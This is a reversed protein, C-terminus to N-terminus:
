APRTAATGSSCGAREHTIAGAKVEVPLLFGGPSVVAIDVEGVQPRGNAVSAWDLGHFVDWGRPLGDELVRLVDLERYAGATLASRAHLTPHLTAM